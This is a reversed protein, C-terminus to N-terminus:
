TVVTAGSSGDVFFFFTLGQAHPNNINEERKQPPNQITNGINERGKKERKKKKKKNNSEEAFGCMGKSRNIEGKDKNRRKREEEINKKEM